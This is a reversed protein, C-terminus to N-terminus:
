WDEVLLRLENLTYSAEAAIDHGHISEYSEAYVNIKLSGDYDRTSRRMSVLVDRVVDEVFQPKLHVRRVLDFEDPRKLLESTLHTSQNIAEYITKFRCRTMNSKEGSVSARVMGKLSHTAIPVRSM